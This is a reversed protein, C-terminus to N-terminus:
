GENPTKTPLHLEAVGRDERGGEMWRGGRQRQEKM